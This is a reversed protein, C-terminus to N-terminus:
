KIAKKKCKIMPTSVLKRWVEDTSHNWSCRLDLALEALSDFGEVETPLLSHVPNIFRLQENM